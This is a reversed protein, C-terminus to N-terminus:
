TRAITSSPPTPVRRAMSVICGAEIEVAGDEWYRFSGTDDTARPEDLFTLVRGRLLKRTM